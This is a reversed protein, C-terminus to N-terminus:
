RRELVARAETLFRARKAPDKVREGVKEVLQPLQEEKLQEGDHVLAAIEKDVVVRSIPGLTETLTRVLRAIRVESVGDLFLTQEGSFSPTKARAVPTLEAVTEEFSQMVEAASPATRSSLLERRVLEATEPRDDRAKSLMKMVLRCLRTSLDPRLMQLMPPPEKIHALLLDTGSRGPFPTDGSLMEFLMVGLAYIDARADATNGLCQEPAMYNPTGFVSGEATEVSYSGTLKAIGFDLVLAFDKGAFDKEVLVNDTKLDRHVIGMAHAEALASAIQAGIEIVREAPLTKERALVDALSIGNSLEMVIYAGEPVRGCDYISIVHRSRLCGAARAERFFRKVLDESALFQQKMVKVAVERDFQLQRARYVAGMGGEGIVASLSVKGDLVQGVLSKM